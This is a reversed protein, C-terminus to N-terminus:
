KILTIKGGLKEIKKKASSSISNVEFDLKSKLDGGGLLKLANYKKSILKSKKLINLNYSLLSYNM